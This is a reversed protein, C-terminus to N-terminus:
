NQLLFQPPGRPSYESTRQFNNLLGIETYNLKNHISDLKKPSSSQQPLYDQETSTNCSLFWCDDETQRQHEQEAPSSAESHIHVTSDVHLHEHEIVQLLSREVQKPGLHHVGHFPLWVMWNLLFLVCAQVVTKVAFSSSSINPTLYM